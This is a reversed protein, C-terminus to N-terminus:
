SSAEKDLYETLMESFLDVVSGLQEELLGRLYLQFEKNTMNTKDPTRKNNKAIKGLKRDLIQKLSIKPEKPSNVNTSKAGNVLINNAYAQCTTQCALM